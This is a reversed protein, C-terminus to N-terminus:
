LLQAHQRFCRIIKKFDTQNRHVGFRGDGDGMDQSTAMLGWQMFGAAGKSDFWRKLHQETQAVRDGGEFGIEEIIFPMNLRQARQAEREARLAELTLWRNPAQSYYVHATMFDLNPLSYLQEAQKNNCGLNGSNIVGTTILHIPDLTRIRNSVDAAFQIFLEPL